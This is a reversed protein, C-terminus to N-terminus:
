LIWMLGPHQGQMSRNRVDDLLTQFTDSWHAHHADWPWIEESAELDEYELICSVVRDFFKFKEQLHEGLKRFSPLSYLAKFADGFAPTMSALVLTSNGVCKTAATFLAGRWPLSWLRLEEVAESGCLVAKKHHNQIDAVRSLPRLSGDVDLARKPDFLVDLETCLHGFASSLNQSAQKSASEGRGM